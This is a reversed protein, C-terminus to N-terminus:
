ALLLSWSALRVLAPEVTPAMLARVQEPDTLLQGDKWKMEVDGKAVAEVLGDLLAARDRSGDLLGILEREFGNLEINRHRLSTVRDSRMAQLRALPSALPREGAAVAFRAAHVHLEVVEALFCRLLAGALAEPVNEAAAARHGNRALMAQAGDWVEGFPVAAPWAAALGLLSAKLLPSSTGMKVGAQTSFELPTEPGLDIAPATPRGLGTIQMGLVARASPPKLSVQEHCLLTCRLTRNRMFDLYQEGHIRDTTLRQLTATAHPTLNAPLPLPRAEALYQLGKAAARAAFEHFYVPINVEEFHEHFLYADSTRGLTEAEQRLVKGYASDPDGATEILFDLLARAQAVKQVAEPFQETHFLMMERVMARMHWGPFTNYSVYAVGNPALNAKCVALIKDQVPPPVWSYIGHCVLYDFEGLAADVELISGTRLEINTLGLARVIDQGTEIQRPSLDIGVFRSGPHTLAMPILNSGTSCGIELVRCHEPPPPQMGFLTAMTALHDPLTFPYVNDPYPLEDYITSPAEAM